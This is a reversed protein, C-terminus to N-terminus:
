MGFGQTGESAAKRRLFTYRLASRPRVRSPIIGEPMSIQSELSDFEERISCTKGIGPEGLLGLVQFRAIADFPMVDPNMTQGYESDPDLLYGEDGLNMRGTPAVWFRKWDFLQKAM